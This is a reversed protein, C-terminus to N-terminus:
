ALIGKSALYTDITNYLNSILVEKDEDPVDALKRTLLVLEADGGLLYDAPVSFYEALRQLMDFNPRRVGAEWNGVASQMVELDRALEAQSIQKEERLTKVRQAFM